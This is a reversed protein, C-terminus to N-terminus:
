DYNARYPGEFSTAQLYEVGGAPIRVSVVGSPSTVEVKVWRNSNNQSCFQKKAYDWVLTVDRCASGECEYFVPAAAHSTPFQAPSAVSLLAALTVCLAICMRKM